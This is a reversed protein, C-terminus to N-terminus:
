KFRMNFLLLDEESHTTFVVGLLSYKESMSNRCFDVHDFDNNLVNHNIIGYFVPDKSQLFHAVYIITEVTSSISKTGDIEVETKYENAIWDTLCSIDSEIYKEILNKDMDM